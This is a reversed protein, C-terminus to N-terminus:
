APALSAERNSGGGTHHGSGRPCLIMINESGPKQDEGLNQHQTPRHPGLKSPKLRARFTPVRPVRSSALLAALPCRPMQSATSRKAAPGPRHPTVHVPASAPGESKKQCRKSPGLKVSWIGSLGGTKTKKNGQGESNKYQSPHKIYVSGHPLTFFIIRLNTDTVWMTSKPLDARLLLFIRQLRTSRM